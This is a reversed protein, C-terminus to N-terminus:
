TTNNCILHSSTLTAWVCFPLALGPFFPSGLCMIVIWQERLERVCLHILETYTIVKLERLGCGFCKEHDTVLVEGPPMLASLQMLISATPM